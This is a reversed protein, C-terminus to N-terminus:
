EGFARSHCCLGPAEKNTKALCSIQLFDLIPQLRMDSLRLCCFWQPFPNRGLYLYPHININIYIYIYIYIYMNRRFVHDDLSKRKQWRMSYGEPETLCPPKPQSQTWRRVSQLNLCSRTSSPRTRNGFDTLHHKGEILIHRTLGLVSGTLDLRWTQLSPKSHLCARDWISCTCTNVSM